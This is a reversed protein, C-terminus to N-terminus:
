AKGRNSLNNNSAQVFSQMLGASELVAMLFYVGAVALFVADSRGTTM